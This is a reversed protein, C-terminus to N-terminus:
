FERLVNLVMPHANKRLFLIGILYNIMNYRKWDCEEIECFIRDYIFIIAIRQRQQFYHDNKKKEDLEERDKEFDTVEFM